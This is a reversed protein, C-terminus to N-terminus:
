NTPSPINKIVGAWKSSETEIFKAFGQADLYAPEASVNMIQARVAETGMTKEMADSLKTLVDPPTGAPLFLGMWGLASYDKIGGEAITPIDPAVQSRQPSTVGLAVLKGSQVHPHASTLDVMAAVINGGLLDTVAPSSGKYPIPSFQVGAESALYEGALHQSTYQGSHGYTVAGPNERAGKLFQDLSSYKGSASAVLVLPIDALKGLPTLDTQPKLPPAGPLHPGVAIAGTAGLGITHGDPQAKAVALLGVSGGAGPRNDVIVTQGLLNSMEKGVARAIADASAGPAFPVILTIPKSPFDAASAGTAVLALACPLLLKKFARM